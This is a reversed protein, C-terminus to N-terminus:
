FCRNFLLLNELDFSFFLLLEVCVFRVKMKSPLLHCYSKVLSQIEIVQRFFDYSKTSHFESLHNTRWSIMTLKFNILRLLKSNALYKQYQDM